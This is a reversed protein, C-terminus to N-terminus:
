YAAPVFQDLYHLSSFLTLLKINSAPTFFNDDRYNFVAKNKKPDFVLLGTHYQDAIDLSDWLEELTKVQDQRLKKQSSCSSNCFVMLFILVYFSYYKGHFLRGSIKQEAQM